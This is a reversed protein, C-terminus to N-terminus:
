IEAEWHILTGGIPASLTSRQHNGACDYMYSGRGSLITLRGNKALETFRQIDALGKGRHEQETRSRGLHMAAQILSADDNQLGFNSLIGRVIEKPHKRVTTAPIGVGQDFFSVTVRRDMKHFSASMWWRGKLPTPMIETDDPYAHHSVNTMAEVLGRYLAAREKDGEKLSGSLSEISSSIEDAREGLAQDESLFRVFSVNGDQGSHGTPANLVKVLDYLGMEGLLRRVDPNWRRPSQLTPRFNLLRCWRDIEAGLFLAARPGIHNLDSFDLSLRKNKAAIAHERFENIFYITKNYNISLDLVDPVKL